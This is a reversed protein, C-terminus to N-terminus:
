FGDAVPQPGVCPQGGTVEASAAELSQQCTGPGVTSAAPILRSTAWCGPSCSAPRAAPEARRPVPTLLLGVAKEPQRWALPCPKFFLFLVFGGSKIRIQTIHGGAATRHGQPVAGPAAEEVRGLRCCHTMGLPEASAAEEHGWESGAAAAQPEGLVPRRQNQCMTRQLCGVTHRLRRGVQEKPPLAM